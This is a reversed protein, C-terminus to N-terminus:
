VEAPKGVVSYKSNLLIQRGGERLEGGIGDTESEAIRGGAISAGTVLIIVAGHKVSSSRGVFNASKEAAFCSRCLCIHQSDQYKM